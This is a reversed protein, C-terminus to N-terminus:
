KPTRASAAALRREIVERSIHIRECRLTRCGGPKWHAFCLERSRSSSSGSSSGSREAKAPKPQNLWNDRWQPIVPWWMSPDLINTRARHHWQIAFKIVSTNFDYIDNAEVVSQYFRLQAAALTPLKFVELMIAVMMIFGNAWDEFRKFNKYEDREQRSRVQGNEVTVLSLPEYTAASDKRIWLRWLSFPDLDKTIIRGVLKPNAAPFLDVVSLRLSENEGSLAFADDANNNDPREDRAPERASFQQFATALAQTTTQSARMQETMALLVTNLDPMTTDARKRKTRSVEVPPTADDGDDVSIATEPNTVPGPANRPRLTVAPTRARRNKLIEDPSRGAVLNDIAQQPIDAPWVGYTQNFTALLIAKQSNAPAMSDNALSKWEKAWPSAAMTTISHSM